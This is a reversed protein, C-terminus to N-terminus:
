TTAHIQHIPRTYFSNDNIGTDEPLTTHSKGSKALSRLSEQAETSITVDEEYTAMEVLKGLVTAMIDRIFDEPFYWPFTYPRRNLSNFSESKLLVQLYDLFSFHFGPDELMSGLHSLIAGKM